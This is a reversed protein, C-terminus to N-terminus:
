RLKKELEIFKEKYEFMDKIEEPQILTTVEEIEHFSGALLLKAREKDEHKTVVLFLDASWIDYAHKLKALASDLVGKDHVEFVKTPNGVKVRKWVADYRYPGALYERAASKGFMEALEVLMTILESHTLPAKAPAILPPISPTTIPESIPPPTPNKKIEMLIIEYDSEDIPKKFNVPWGGSGQVYVQLAHKKEVFKLKPVLDKYNAEGLQIVELSIQHPYKKKQEKIEDSWVLEKTEYWDSAVRFAGKFHLTGKVYFIFIDGKRVKTAVNKNYTAWVKKRAVIEWNEQTASWLWYQM